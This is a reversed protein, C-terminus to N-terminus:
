ASLRQQVWRDTQEAVGQEMLHSYQKVVTELRDNLLIAANYVNGTQRIYETAWIPDAPRLMSFGGRTLNGRPMRSSWNGRLRESFGLNYLNKRIMGGFFIGSFGSLNWLRSGPPIDAAVAPQGLDGVFDAAECRKGTLTPKSVSRGASGVLSLGIWNIRM